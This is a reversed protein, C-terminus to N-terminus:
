TEVRAEDLIDNRAKRARVAGFRPRPGASRTALQERPRVVDRGQKWLKMRTMEAFAAFRTATAGAVAACASCAARCVRPCGVVGTHGGGLSAGLEQRGEVGARMSLRRGPAATHGPPSGRHGSGWLQEPFCNAGCRLVREPRRTVGDDLVCLSRRGFSWKESSLFYSRTTM